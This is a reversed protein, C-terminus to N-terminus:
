GCGGGSSGGPIRTVDWPNFTTGFYPNITTGGAAWEHMNTKGLVIAGANKLRAVVTADFDPIWDALIKSGATTKVGGIALNDKISVPIGHLPGRYKGAAIEKAATKADELALEATVTQYANLMPNLKRIRALYEQTLEVPSLEGNHVRDAAATITLNLLDTEKM